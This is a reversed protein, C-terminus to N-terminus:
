GCGPRTRKWLDFAKWWRLIWRVANKKRMVTVWPRKSASVFAPGPTAKREGKLLVLNKKVHRGIWTEGYKPILVRKVSRPWCATASSNAHIINGARKM